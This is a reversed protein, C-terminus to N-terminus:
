IISENKFFMKRPMNDIKKLYFKDSICKGNETSELKEELINIITFYNHESKISLDNM